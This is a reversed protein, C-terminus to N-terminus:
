CLTGFKKLSRVMSGDSNCPSRHPPLTASDAVPGPLIKNMIFYFLINISEYNKRSIPMPKVFLIVRDEESTKGLMM